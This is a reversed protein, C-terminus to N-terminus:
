LCGLTAEILLPHRGDNGPCSPRTYAQCELRFFSGANPPHRSGCTGGSPLAFIIFGRGWTAGAKGRIYDKPFLVCDLQDWIYPVQARMNGEFLGIAQEMNNINYAGVAFKGYAVQFLQDTTVIM